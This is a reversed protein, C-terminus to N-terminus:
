ERGFVSYECSVSGTFGHIPPHVKTVKTDVSMCASDLSLVRESIQKALTEILQYQEEMMIQRVLEFVRVYNLTDNLDDTVGAHVIKDTEIKLDVIFKQPQVKEEDLAGHCAMFEMKNLNLYFM